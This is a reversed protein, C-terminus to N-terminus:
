LCSWCDQLSFRCSRIQINLSHINRCRYWTYYEFLNVSWQENESRQDRIESRQDPRLIIKRLLSKPCTWVTRKKGTAVVIGRIAVFSNYLVWHFHECQAVAVDDGAGICGIIILFLNFDCITCHSRVKIGVKNRALLIHRKLLSIKFWWVTRNQSEAAGM